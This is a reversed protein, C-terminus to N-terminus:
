DWYSITNAFMAKTLYNMGSIGSEFLVGIAIMGKAVLLNPVTCVDHLMKTQRLSTRGFNTEVMRQHTTQLAIITASKPLVPNKSCVTM